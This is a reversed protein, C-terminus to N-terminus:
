YRYLEPDRGSARYERRFTRYFGSNGQYMSFWPSTRTFAANVESTVVTTNDRAVVTAVHFNTLGKRVTATNNWPSLVDEEVAEGTGGPVPRIFYAEGPQLDNAPRLAIGPRTIRSMHPTRGTLGILHRAYQGCDNALYGLISNLNLRNEWKKSYDIYNTVTRRFGGSPVPNSAANVGYLESTDQRSYGYVQRSSYRMDHVHTSLLWLLRCVQRVRTYEADTLDDRLDSLIDGYKTKYASVMNQLANRDGELQGLVRFITAEDTGAGAMALYLEDEPQLIGHNLLRLAEILESGSFESRIDAELERGTLRRYATKIRLREAVTRGTLAAYVAEEDTGIRDMAQKLQYAVMDAFTNSPEQGERTAATPSFIALHRMESDTLEDQLDGILSRHYMEQYVRAIADVQEQTRGSFASYIAEEDTGWGRMAERLRRAIQRVMENSLGGNDAAESAPIAYRQLSSRNHNQQVVHTLEHALLRRGASTQPAYRGAGFVINNGTTFARAALAGASSVADVGRHIRVGGFDAGFRPGYFNLLSQPLPEGHGRLTNIKSSIHPTVEPTNGSPKKTQIIDEEDEEPQKQIPPTIQKSLPKLEVMEEDESQRRVNPEPMRIIQDAVRDAEREYTDGPQGITLKSQISEPEALQRMAQNGISRQLQVVPRYSNPYHTAKCLVDSKGNHGLGAQHNLKTVYNKPM